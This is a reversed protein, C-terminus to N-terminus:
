EQFWGGPGAVSLNALSDLQCVYGSSGSPTSMARLKTLGCCYDGCTSQGIGTDVFGQIEAPPWWLFHAISGLLNGIIGGFFPNFHHNSTSQGMDGIPFHCLFHSLLDLCGKLIATGDLFFGPERARGNDAAYDYPMGSKLWLDETLLNKMQEFQMKGYRPWTM